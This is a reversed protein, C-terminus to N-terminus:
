PCKLMKGIAGVRLFFSGHSPDTHTTKRKRITKPTSVPEPEAVSDKFLWHFNIIIIIRKSINTHTQTNFLFSFLISFLNHYYNSYVQNEWVFFIAVFHLGILNAHLSHLNYDLYRCIRGRVAFGKRKKIFKKKKWTKLM